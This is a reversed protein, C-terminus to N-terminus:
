AQPRTPISQRSEPGFAFDLMEGLARAIAVRDDREGEALWGSAVLLAVERQYVELPVVKLGLRQRERHERKRRAASSPLPSVLDNGSTAEASM